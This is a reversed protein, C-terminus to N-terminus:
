PFENLTSEGFRQFEATRENNLGMLAGLQVATAADEHQVAQKHSDAGEQMAISHLGDKPFDGEIRVIGLIGKGQHRSKHLLVPQVLSGDTWM